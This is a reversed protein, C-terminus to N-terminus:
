GARHLTEKNVRRRCTFFLLLTSGDFFITVGDYSRPENSLSGSRWFLKRPLLSVSVRCRLPFLSSLALCLGCLSSSSEENGNVNGDGTQGGSDYAFLNLVKGLPSLRAMAVLCGGVNRSVM